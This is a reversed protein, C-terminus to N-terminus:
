ERNGPLRERVFAVLERALALAAEADEPAPEPPGGPYRGAAAFPTLTAARTRLGAFALDIGACQGVLTEMNHTNAFPSDHWTLFAKLAKEAAQQCHFAVVGPASPPQLMREATRLDLDAWELWERTLRAKEQRPDVIIAGQWPKPAGAEYLVRGERVITAPLSAVVPLARAFEERTWVLVDIPVGVYGLARHAEQMRAMRTMDSRPVVLMLDYDSDTTADGRAQSGFLYICDPHLAAVLRRVAEALPDTRAEDALTVM